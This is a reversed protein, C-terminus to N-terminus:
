LGFFKRIRAALAVHTAPAMGSSSLAAMKEQRDSLRTELIVALKGALEGNSKLVGAFDDKSICVVEVDTEAVVTGSRPEGTLLSM